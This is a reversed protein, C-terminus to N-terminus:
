ERMREEEEKTPTYRHPLSAIYDRLEKAEDVTLYCPMRLTACEDIRQLVDGIM